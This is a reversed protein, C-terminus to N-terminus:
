PMTSLSGTSPFNASKTESSPPWFHCCSGGAASGGVRGLSLANAALLEQRVTCPFCFTHNAVPPALTARTKREVSRPLVQCTASVGTCGALEDEPIKESAKWVACAPM